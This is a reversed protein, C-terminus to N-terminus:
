LSRRLPDSPPVAAEVRNRGEAKARYLAADAVQLLPELESLGSTRCSAVGASLTVRVLQDGVPLEFAAVLARLREAVQLADALPTEPAVVVFEEGGTRAVVDVQRVGIQLARAVGQLVRDGVAHGYRDNVQKFRDVDLAILSLDREYREARRLERLLAVRLGRRNRLGTLEDTRALLRLRRNAQHLEGALHQFRLMARLRLRLEFPHIPKHLVEDAGTEIARARAAPDDIGTILIIPVFPGPQRRIEEIVAFGDMDGLLVDLLVLRPRQRHLQALAEHGTAAEVVELGDGELVARLFLRIDADDDVVLVPTV